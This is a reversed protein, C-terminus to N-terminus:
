ESAIFLAMGYRLGIQVIANHFVTSERVVDRWWLFMCGLVFLLGVIMLWPGAGHMYLVTGAALAGGSLAGLLPWPSPDVLHFPHKPGAAASGHPTGTSSSTQAM